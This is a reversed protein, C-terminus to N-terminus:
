SLRHKCIPCSANTRLWKDACEQHFGHLCPLTMRTEGKSFEELCILCKRSEEPLESEPDDIVKTPLQRIQGEDAGRNDSGDGFAQLLQEYDMGDVDREGGRTGQQLYNHLLLSLMPDDIGEAMRGSVRREIRTSGNGGTIITTSRRGGATHRIVRYSSRPRVRRNPNEDDGSNISPYGAIGNANSSRAQAVSMRAQAVSQNRSESATSAVNPSRLAQQLFAGGTFGTVAGEMAGSLFNGGNALSGAAGLMGGLLAGGSAFSLPSPMSPSDDILRENRTPDPPREPNRFHCAECIAVTKPNLLTCQPCAWEDKSSEDTNEAQQSSPQDPTDSLDVVESVQLIDDSQHSERRRRRRVGTDTPTSYAEAPIVRGPHEPTAPIEIPEQTDNVSDPEAKLGSEDTAMADPPFDNRDIDNGVEDEVDMSDDANEAMASPARARGQCAHIKHITMNMEPVMKGCDECRLMVAVDQNQSSEDEAEM